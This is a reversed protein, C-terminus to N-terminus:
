HKVSCDGKWVEDALERDQTNSTTPVEHVLQDVIM